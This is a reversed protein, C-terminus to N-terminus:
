CTELYMPRPNRPSRQGDAASCRVTGQQASNGQPVQCHRAHGSLGIGGYHLRLVAVGLAVGEVVSGDSDLGEM